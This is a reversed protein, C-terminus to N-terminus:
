DAVTSALPAYPNIVSESNAEVPFFIAGFVNFQDIVMLSDDRNSKSNSKSSVLPLRGGGRFDFGAESGCIM